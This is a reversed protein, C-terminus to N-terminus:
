KRRTHKQSDDTKGDQGLNKFQGALLPGIGVVCHNRENNSKEEKVTDLLEYQDVMNMLGVVGSMVVRLHADKRGKCQSSVAKHVADPDTQCKLDRLSDPDDHGDCHDGVVKTVAEVRNAQHQNM